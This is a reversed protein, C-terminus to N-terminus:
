HLWIPPIEAVGVTILPPLNGYDHWEQQTSVPIESGIYGHTEQTFHVNGTHWTDFKTWMSGQTKESVSAGSLGDFASGGLILTDSMLGNQDLYSERYLSIGGTKNSTTSGFTISISAASSGNQDKYSDQSWTRVEDLGVSRLISFVDVIGGSLVSKTMDLLVKSETYVMPVQPFIGFTALNLFPVVSPITATHM